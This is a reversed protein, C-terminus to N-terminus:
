EIGLRERVADGSARWSAVSEKTTKPMRAKPQEGKDDVNPKSQTYFKDPVKAETKKFYRLVAKPSQAALSALDVGLEDQLALFEKEATGKDGYIEVLSNAVSATNEKAIRAQERASLKQELYADLDDQSLEPKRDREELLSEVSKQRQLEQEYEQMKQEFEELKQKYEQNDRELQSIHNQAHPISGLAQEVTSYKPKGEQNTIGQLMQSFQSDEHKPTVTEQEAPTEQKPAEEGKPTEQPQDGNEFISM